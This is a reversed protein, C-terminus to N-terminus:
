SRRGGVKRMPEHAALTPKRKVAEAREFHAVIGNMGGLNVRKTCPIGATSLAAAVEESVRPQYNFVLTGGPRLLRTFGRVLAKTDTEFYAAAQSYIVDVSGPGVGRAELAALGAATIYPHEVVGEPLDAHWPTLNTMHLNVQNGLMGGFRRALGAVNRPKAVDAADITDRMGAWGAGVELFRLSGNRKLAADCVRPIDVGVAEALRFSGGSSTWSGDHVLAAFASTLSGTEKHMVKLFNLVNRRSPVPVNPRLRRAQLDRKVGMAISRLAESSPEYGITSFTENIARRARAAEISLM